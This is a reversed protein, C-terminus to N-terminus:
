RRVYIEMKQAKSALTAPGCNDCAYMCAITFHTTMPPQIKLLEPDVPGSPYIMDFHVRRDSLRDLGSEPASSNKPEEGFRCDVCIRFVVMVNKATVTGIAWATIPVTVVGEVLPLEATTQPILKGGKVFEDTDIGFRLAAKPPLPLPVGGVPAHPQEPPQPAPPHIVLTYQPYARLVVLSEFLLVLAVFVSGMYWGTPQSYNPVIKTGSPDFLSPGKSAETEIERNLDMAAQVIVWVAFVGGTAILPFAFDLPNNRIDQWSLRQTAFQWVFAAIALVFPVLLQQGHLFRAVRKMLLVLFRRLWYM